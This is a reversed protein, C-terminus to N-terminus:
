FSINLSFLSFFNIEFIYLIVSFIMVISLLVFRKFTLVGFDKDLKVHLWSNNKNITKTIKKTSSEKLKNYEKQLENVSAEMQRTKEKLESNNEFLIENVKSIEDIKEQAKITCSKYYEFDELLKSNDRLLETKNSELVKKEEKLCDCKKHLNVVKDNLLVNIEKTTEIEKKFNETEKFKKDLILKQENNQNKLILIEQEKTKIDERLKKELRKSVKNLSPNFKYVVEKEEKEKKHESEKSFIVNEIDNLLSSFTARNTEESKSGGRDLGGESYPISWSLWAADILNKAIRPNLYDSDTLNLTRYYLFCSKKFLSYITEFNVDPHKKNLFIFISDKKLNLKESFQKSNFFKDLRFIDISTKYCVQSTLLIVSSNFKSM